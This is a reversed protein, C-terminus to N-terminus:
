NKVNFNQINHFAVMVDFLPNRSLDREINLMTILEDFPYLQHKFGGLVKDKVILFVDSYNFDEEAKIRLALTNLYIGIQNKLNSHERGSIPSGFVIDDQETYRRLLCYILSICSMFLTGNNEQCHRKLWKSINTDFKKRVYSGNYTQQAPWPFDTPLDLLPIEGIFENLWYEKDNEFILKNTDDNQWLSFDKYQIELPPLISLADSEGECIAKYLILLENFFVGSSWGDSIIHHMAYVFCYKVESLRFIYTKLLPAKFLDFVSNNIQDVREKLVKESDMTNRLDIVVLQSDHLAKFDVVHQFVMGSNDIKFYTRLVEHREFLLQISTNLAALDLTGNITYAGSINYANNGGDFQSVIWLRKQAHSLPYSDMRPYQSIGTLSNNISYSKLIRLIAIKNEKIKELILPDFDEKYISLELEEDVLSIQIGNKKAEEILKIIDIM